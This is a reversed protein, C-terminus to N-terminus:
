ACFFAFMAHLSVKLLPNIIAATVLLVLTVLAGRVISVPARLLVLAAIGTGSLVIASPYFRSRESHVSVDADSWRGSRVGRVLLLAIPVVMSSIMALLVMFGVKNALRSILVVTLSATAFVLPHGVWSVLWATRWLRKQLVSQHTGSAAFQAATM